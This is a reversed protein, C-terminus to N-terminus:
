ESPPTKLEDASCAGDHRPKDTEDHVYCLLKEVKGDKDYVKATGHRRGGVWAVERLKVGGPGYDVETGQVMGRDFAGEALKNGDEDWAIWPGHLVGAQLSKELKMRGNAHYEVVRGTAAGSRTQLWRGRLYRVLAAAGIAVLFLVLLRAM